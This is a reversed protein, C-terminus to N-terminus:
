CLAIDAGSAALGTGSRLIPSQFPHGTRSLELAASRGIEHALAPVEGM